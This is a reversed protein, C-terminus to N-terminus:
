AKASSITARFPMSNLPTVIRLYNTKIKVSSLHQNIFFKEGRHEITISSFRFVEVTFKM